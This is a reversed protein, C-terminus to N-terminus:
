RGRNASIHATLTIAPHTWILNDAPLPEADVVDLFAHAPRG